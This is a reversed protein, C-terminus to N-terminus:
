VTQKKRQRCPDVVWGVWTTLRPLNSGLDLLGALSESAGGIQYCNGQKVKVYFCYSNVENKLIWTIETDRHHGDIESTGPVEFILYDLPPLNLAQEAQGVHWKETILYDHSHMPSDTIDLGPRNDWNRISLVIVVSCPMVGTRANRGGEGKDTVGYIEDSSIYVGM